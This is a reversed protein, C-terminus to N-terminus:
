CTCTLTPWVAVGQADAGATFRMGRPLGSCRKAVQRHLPNRGEVFPAWIPHVVAKQAEKLHHDFRHSLPLSPSSALSCDALARRGEVRVWRGRGHLGDVGLGGGDLPADFDFGADRVGATDGDTGIVVTARYTDTQIGGSGQREVRGCEVAVGPFCFAVAGDAAIHALHGAFENGGDEVAVGPYFVEGVHDLPQLGDTGGDVGGAAQM